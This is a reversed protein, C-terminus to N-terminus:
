PYPIVEKTKTRETLVRRVKEAVIEEQGKILPSTDIELYGLGENHNSVIISPDGAGLAEYVEHASMDLGKEIKLRVKPPFPHEMRAPHLTPNDSASPLVLTTNVHPIPPQNLKDHIYEAWAIAEKRSATTTSAWDSWDRKEYMELAIMLAVIEEKGVKSRRAITWETLECAEILDKRGCILGASTPGCITKGGSFTALDAGARVPIKIDEAAAGDVIVPISQEHAVAVTEELSIQWFRQIVEPSICYFVAATEAGIAQRLEEKYDGMAVISGTTCGIPIMRAGTTEICNGAGRLYPVMHGWPVIIESRLGQTNPLKALKVKDPGCMCAASMITIGAAAGNCVCGAEAETARAITEGAKKRLERMYIYSQAAEVMAQRVEPHMISAGLGTMGAGRCNIVERVGLSKYISDM